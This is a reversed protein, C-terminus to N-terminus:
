KEMTGGDYRLQLRPNAFSQRCCRSGTIALGSLGRHQILKQLIGAFRSALAANGTREHFRMHWSLKLAWQQDDASLQDFICAPLDAKVVQTTRTCDLM